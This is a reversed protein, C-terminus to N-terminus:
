GLVAVTVTIEDVPAPEWVRGLRLVIDGSGASIARVRFVREGRSGPEAPIADAGTLTLNDDVSGVSWVYGTTANEPLRIVVEDGTGVEVTEAGTVEVQGM